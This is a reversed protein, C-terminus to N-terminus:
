QVLLMITTRAPYILTVSSCNTHWQNFANMFNIALIKDAITMFSPMPIFLPICRSYSPWFLLCSFIDYVRLLDAYLNSSSNILRRRLYPFVPQIQRMCLKTLLFATMTHGKTIHTHKTLWDCNRRLYHLPTSRMTHTPRGIWRTLCEWIQCRRTNVNFIHVDSWELACKHKASWRRDISWCDSSLAITGLYFYLLLWQLFWSPNILM